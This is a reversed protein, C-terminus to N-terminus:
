FLAGELEAGIPLMGVHYAPPTAAPVTVGGTVPAVDAGLSIGVHSGPQGCRAVLSAPEATINNPYPRRGVKGAADVESPTVYVASVRTRGVKWVRAIRYRQHAYIAVLDGVQYGGDPNRDGNRVTTDRVGHEALDAVLMTSLTAFDGAALTDIANTITASM